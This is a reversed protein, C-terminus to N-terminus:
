RNKPPWPGTSPQGPQGPAQQPSVQNLASRALAQGPCGAPSVQASRPLGCPQGPSVQAARLASRPQGYRNPGPCFAWGVRGRGLALIWGRGAPLRGSGSISGRGALPPGVRFISGGRSWSGVGMLWFRAASSWGAPQHGFDLRAQGAGPGAPGFDLGPRGIPRGSSM